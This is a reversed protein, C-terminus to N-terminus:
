SASLVQVNHTEWETLAALNIRYWCRPPEVSVEKVTIATVRLSITITSSAFIAVSFWSLLYTVSLILHGVRVMTM